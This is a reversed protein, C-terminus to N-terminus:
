GDTGKLLIKGVMDYCLQVLEESGHKGARHNEVAKAIKSCHDDETSLGRIKVEELIEEDSLQEFVEDTSVYLQM